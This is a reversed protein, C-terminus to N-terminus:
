QRCRMLEILNEFSLIAAWQKRSRRHAVVPIKGAGADDTAQSLWAYLSGRECRKVEIHLGPIGVVDPSEAGGHYQVGRRADVFGHERLFAAFELEGVKGKQRSNLM